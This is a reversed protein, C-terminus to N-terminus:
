RIEFGEFDQYPMAVIKVEDIRAWSPGLHCWLIFQDLYAEEGTAELYVSGDPQNKVFGTINSKQATKQTHYRFGVNQVRGSIKLAVSKKM